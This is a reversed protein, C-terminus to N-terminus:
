IIYMNFEIKIYVTKVPLLFSLLIKPHKYIVM